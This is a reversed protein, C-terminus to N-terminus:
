TSRRSLCLSECTGSNLRFALLLAFLLSLSSFCQASQVSLGVEGRVFFLWGFFSVNGRLEALEGESCGWAVRRGVVCPVGFM